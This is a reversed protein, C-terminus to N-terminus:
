RKGVKADFYANVERHADDRLEMRRKFTLKAGALESFSARFFRMLRAEADGEEPKPRRKRPEDPHPLAVIKRNM